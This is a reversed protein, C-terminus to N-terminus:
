VPCSFVAGIRDHSSEYSKHAQYIRDWTLKDLVPIRARELLFTVDNNKADRVSKAIMNSLDGRSPMKGIRSSIIQTCEQIETRTLHRNLMCVFVVLVGRSHENHIRLLKGQTSYTVGKYSRLYDVLSMTSPDHSGTLRNCSAILSRALVESRGPSGKFFVGITGWYSNSPIVWTGKIMTCSMCESQIFNRGPIVLSSTQTMKHSIERDWKMGSQENRRVLLYSYSPKYFQSHFQYVKEPTLGGHDEFPKTPKGEQFRVWGLYSYYLRNMPTNNQIESHVIDIERQAQSRTPQNLTFIGAIFKCVDQIANNPIGTVRYLTYDEFTHILYQLGYKTRLKLFGYPEPFGGNFACAFHECTHACEPNTMDEHNEGYPILLSIESYSTTTPKTYYRLGNPLMHEM